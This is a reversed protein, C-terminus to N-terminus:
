QSDAPIQFDRGERQQQLPDAIKRGDDLYRVAPDIAGLIPGLQRETLM